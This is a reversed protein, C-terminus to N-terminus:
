RLGVVGAFNKLTVVEGNRLVEVVIQDSEGLSQGKEQMRKQFDPEGVRIGHIALIIDGGLSLTQGGIQTKLTGPRLGLASAPSGAVVAEVVVGAGQPINLAAARPYRTRRKNRWLNRWAFPFLIKLIRM